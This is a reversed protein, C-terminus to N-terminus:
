LVPGSTCWSINFGSLAVVEDGTRLDLVHTELREPLALLLDDFPNNVLDPAIAIAVYQGSPSPCAQLITDDQGVEFLVTAAGTDDVRAVAQGLPLGIEDRNIVHQITGGPYPEIAVPAGFDPDSAPFAETAGDELNLRVLSGDTHQIIATYTGREIGRISLVMGMPSPDSASARDSVYLTGAFDIFLVSATDPVFQWEAISAEAGGVEVISPEAAGTLPQTVLVSARGSTDTLDADSYVVGVIGGRDSVQVGSVYGTGPLPLERPDEGPAIVLVRSHDDEEVVVVLAGDAERFDNIRPHTFVPTADGDLGTQWITDDGSTRQLLLVESAPTTFSTSLDSAPGGGIGRVGEVTVTYETADDLPVTFRVGVTRGTADVTFPVEPTVTVRAPDVAELPQNTSLIIRSGSLEIAEAPDVNVGSLRPGQGLGVAALVAGVIVLAGIVAAITLVFRSPRRRTPAPADASEAAATRPEAAATGPEGVARGREGVAGRAQGVRTEPGASGVGPVAIPLAPVVTDPMPVAPVDSEEARGAAERLARAEARTRPTPEEDTSM